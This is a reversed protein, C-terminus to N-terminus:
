KKLKKEAMIAKHDPLFFGEIHRGNPLQAILEELVVLSMPGVMKAVQSRWRKRAADIEIGNM